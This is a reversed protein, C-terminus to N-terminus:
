QPAGESIAIDGGRSELNLFLSRMGTVSKNTEMVISGDSVDNEATEVTYRTYHVCSKERRGGGEEEEECHDIVPACVSVCLRREKLTPCKLRPM